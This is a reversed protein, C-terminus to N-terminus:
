KRKLVRKIVEFKKDKKIGPEAQNPLSPSEVGIGAIAGSGVSNGVVEENTRKM